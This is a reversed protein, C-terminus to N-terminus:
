IGLMTKIEELTTIQGVSKDDRFKVLRPFRLAYGASHTPSITIEDAAVEVVINPEVWVDPELTKPVEYESPQTDCKITQLRENLDKFIEDTIGTGVKALTVVKEGHKVGVLFAGLGFGSRKGKGLYYGMIVVDITDSLKARSDEAEKFKVWNFGTRGPMYTGDIQKVLAGELGAELQKKHYERLEDPDDTEIYEDVKLVEGAGIVESLIKRREHLPLGILSKGDRYMIDFVFFRLPVTDSAEEIGHKRKRTITMQFPVMKGTNPDYGVAESDLIVEDAKIQDAIRQLEPFMSSSEDLNRTFTRVWFEPKEEVSEFMSAQSGTGMTGFKRAGLESGKDEKRSFHIQVRTGDFKKEVIVKGMKRIMEVPTKLRQALAPVIPTGIQISMTEIAKTVGVAKVRQALYGPDPRMQYATELRDSFDKTGNELYSLADIVTKDSFGLRLKGAVMRVIYKASQPDMMKIIKALGSVKREQSGSGSDSAIKELSEYAQGITMQSDSFKRNSFKVVLEGLDGVQQYESEIEGVLKGVSQAVARLIMKEALNFELRDFEPRLGGLALYVLKDVEGEEAERLIDALIVTKANRLSTSEIQGFYEALRSFKM